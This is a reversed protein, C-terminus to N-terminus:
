LITYYLITYYLITYYLITYYLMTYYLITYYLITYYLITYYLITYYLITDQSDEPQSNLSQKKPNRHDKYYQHLFNFKKSPRSSLWSKYIGEAQGEHLQGVCINTLSRLLPNGYVARAKPSVGCIGSLGWLPTELFM